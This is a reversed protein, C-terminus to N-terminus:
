RPLLSEALPVPRPVQQLTRSPLGDVRWVVITGDTALSALSRGDPSWSIGTIDAGHHVSCVQDGTEWDRVDIGRGAHPPQSGAAYYVGGPAYVNGGLDRGSGVVKEGSRVNYRTLRTDYQEEAILLVEDSAWAALEYEALTLVVQGSKRDFVPISVQGAVPRPLDEFAALAGSPSFLAVPKGAYSTRVSQTRFAERFAGDTGREWLIVVGAEEAYPKGSAVLLASSDLVASLSGARMRVGAESEGSPM